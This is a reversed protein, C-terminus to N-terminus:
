LERSWSGSLMGLDHVYRDVNGGPHAQDALILNGVPGYRKEIDAYYAVRKGTDLEHIELRDKQVSVKTFTFNEQGNCPCAGISISTRCHQIGQDDGPGHPCHARWSTWTSTLQSCLM